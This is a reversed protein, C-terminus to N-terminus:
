IKPCVYLFAPPFNLLVFEIHLYNFIKKINKLNSLSYQYQIFYGGPALCKHVTALINDTVSRPMCALPLSSFICDAHTFNFKKLYLPLNEASDCIIKLRPDASLLKNSQMQKCLVPDIEFCLLICDPPMKQLIKKTVTGTGGGFEVVCKADKLDALEVMKKTLFPSSPVFSGVQLPNKLFAYLFRMGGLM